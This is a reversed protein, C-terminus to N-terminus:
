GDTVETEDSEVRADTAYVGYGSHTLRFGRRRLTDQFAEVAALLAEQAEDSALPGGNWRRRETPMDIADVKLEFHVRQRSTGLDPLQDYM